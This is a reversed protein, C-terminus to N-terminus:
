GSPPRGHAMAVRASPHRDDARGGLVASGAVFGTYYTEVARVRVEVIPTQGRYPNEGRPQRMRLTPPPPLAPIGRELNRNRNRFFRQLFEDVPQNRPVLGGGRAWRSECLSKLTRPDASEIRQMTDQQPTAGYLGPVSAGRAKWYTVLLYPSFDAYDVRYLKGDRGLADLELATTWKTNWWAFRNQGALVVLAFILALSLVANTPSYIRALEASRWHWLLWVALCADVLVWTWFFVGTLVVISLHMVIASALLPVTLWRHVLVLAMGLELGLTALGIPLSLSRMHDALALVRAEPWSAHWGNLYAAVVLNELHSRLAWDSPKAGLEFKGIAAYAYYSGLLCLISFVLVRSEISAAPLRLWAPRRGARWASLEAVLLNWLGFGAVAGLTRFPLEDLIRIISSVPHYTQVRSTVVQLAFFPIWLPSRLSLLMFLFLLGRDWLHAQDYYHNHPHAAYPWSLTVMIGFVVWRM